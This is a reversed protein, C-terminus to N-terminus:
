KALGAKRRANRILMDVGFALAVVALEALLGAAQEGKAADWGAVAGAAYGSLRVLLQTLRSIAIPKLVTLFDQM